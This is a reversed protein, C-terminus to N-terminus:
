GMLGLQHMVGASDSVGWRKDTVFVCSVSRRM